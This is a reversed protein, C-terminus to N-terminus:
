VHVSLHKLTKLFFYKGKCVFGCFNSFRVCIYKKRNFGERLIGVVTQGLKEVVITSNEAVVSQGLQGLVGVALVAVLLEDDAEVKRVVADLDPIHPVGAVGLASSAEGLKELSLFQGFTASSACISKRGHSRRLFM